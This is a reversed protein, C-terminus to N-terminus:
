LRYFNALAYPQNCAARCVCFFVFFFFFFFFRDCRFFFGCGVVAFNQQLSRGASLDCVAQQESEDEDFAECEDNDDFSSDRRNDADAHSSALSSLQTDIRPLGRTVCRQFVAGRCNTHCVYFCDDCHFGNGIIMQDCVPCFASISSFQREVFHHHTTM